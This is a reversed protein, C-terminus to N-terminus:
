LRNKVKYKIFYEVGEFVKPFYILSFSTRYIIIRVFSMFFEKWIFLFLIITSSCFNKLFFFTNLVYYWRFWKKLEKLTISGKHFVEISSDFILKYGLKKIRVQLDTEERYATGIDYSEDFMTKLFIDKRVAFNCGPLADVEIERELKIDFNSIVEGLFLIRGVLKSTSKIKSKKGIKVERGSVAGVRPDKFHEIIRDFYDKSLVEIDDDFFVLIKGNSLKAAENKARCRGRKVNSYVMRLNKFRKRLKEVIEKSKRSEDIAVIIEYKIKHKKLLNLLLEKLEKERGSATPIIISIIKIM